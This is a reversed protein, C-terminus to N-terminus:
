LQKVVIHENSLTSLVTSHIQEEQKNDAATKYDQKHPDNSYSTGWSYNMCLTPIVLTLSKISRSM